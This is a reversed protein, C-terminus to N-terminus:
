APADRKIRVGIHLGGLDREAQPVPPVWDPNDSATAELHWKVQSAPLHGVNTFEVHGILEGTTANRIGTSEVSIYARQLIRNDERQLLIAVIVGALALGSFLANVSGFIDGFQGRTAVDEPYLQRVFFPTAMWLAVIVCAVIAAWAIWSLSRVANGLRAMM